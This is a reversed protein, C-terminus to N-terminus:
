THLVLWANPNVGQPPQVGEGEERTAAAAAEVAKKVKPKGKPRPARIGKAGLKAADEPVSPDLLTVCAGDGYFNVGPYITSQGTLGSCPVTSPCPRSLLHVYPPLTAREDKAGPVVAWIRM